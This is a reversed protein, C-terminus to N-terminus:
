GPRSDPRARRERGPRDESPHLEAQRLSPQGVGLLDDLLGQVIRPDVCGAQRDQQPRQIGLLTPDLLRLPQDLRAPIAEIGRIGAGRLRGDVQDPEVDLQSPSGHRDLRGARDQLLGTPLSGLVIADPQPLRSQRDPDAVISLRLAPEVVTQVPTGLVHRDPAGPQVPRDRRIADRLDALGHLVHGGGLRRRHLDGPQRGPEGRPRRIAHPFPAGQFAEDGFIGGIEGRTVSQGLQGGRLALGRPRGHQSGPLGLDGLELRTVVPEVLPPLREAVGRLHSAQCLPEAAPELGPGERGHGDRHVRVPRVETAVERSQLDSVPRGPRLSLGEGIHEGPRRIGRVDQGPRRGGFGGRGRRNGRGIGASFGLLIARRSSFLDAAPVPGRGAPGFDTERRRPASTGPRWGDKRSM